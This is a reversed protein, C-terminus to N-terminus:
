FYIFDQETSVTLLVTGCWLLFRTVSRYFNRLWWIDVKQGTSVLFHLIRRLRMPLQVNKSVEVDFLIRGIFTLLVHTSSKNHNTSISVLSSIFWNKLHFIKKFFFHSKKNIVHLTTYRQVESNRYRLYANVIWIKTSKTPFFHFLSYM